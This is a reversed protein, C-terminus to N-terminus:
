LMKYEISKVKYANERAKKEIKYAKSHYYIDSNIESNIQYLAEEYQNFHIKNSTFGNGNWTNNILYKWFLFSKYQPYYTKKGENTTVIKIRYQTKM